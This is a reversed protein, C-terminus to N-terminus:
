HTTETRAKERYEIMKSHIASIGVLALTQSVTAERPNTVPFGADVSIGEDTETITITCIRNTTPESSM